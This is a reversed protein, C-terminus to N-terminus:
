RFRWPFEIRELRNLLADMKNEHYRCKVNFHDHCGCDHYFVNEDGFRQSELHSDCFSDYGSCGCPADSYTVPIDTYIVYKTRLHKSGLEDVIKGINTYMATADIFLVPPNDYLEYFEEIDKIMNFPISNHAYREPVAKHYISFTSM